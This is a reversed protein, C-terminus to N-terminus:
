LEPGRQEIDRQMDAGAEVADVDLLGVVAEDHHLDVVVRVALV